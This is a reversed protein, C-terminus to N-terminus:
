KIKLGNIQGTDGFSVALVNNTPDGCVFCGGNQKNLDFAPSFKARSIEEGTNRGITVLSGDISLLYIKEGLVYLNSHVDQSVKWHIEGTYQDVSYISPPSHWTRIFITEDDFIPADTYRNDLEVRWLEEKSSIRVAKIGSNYELYLIDDIALFTRNM